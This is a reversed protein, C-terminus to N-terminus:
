ILKKKYHNILEEMKDLYFQNSTKATHENSQEWLRYLVARLRQSPTKEGTDLVLPPLNDVDIDETDQAERDSKAFFFHGYIQHLLMLDAAQQASVEQTDVQLRIGKDSMTTIKSVIAPILIQM